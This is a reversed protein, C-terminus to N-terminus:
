SSPCCRFPPKLRWWLRRPKAACSSPMGPWRWPVGSGQEFKEDQPINGQLLALKLPAKAAQAPTHCLEVACHRQVWAFGGAGLLVLAAVWTRWHRLDRWRCQVLAMALGASIAGVGYVGVVRPLSSLPGQVHAYGGRGM